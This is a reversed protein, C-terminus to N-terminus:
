VRPKVDQSTPETYTAAPSQKLKLCMSPGVCTLLGVQTAPLPAAPSKRAAVLQGAVLALVCAVLRELALEALACEAAGIMQCQVHLSM